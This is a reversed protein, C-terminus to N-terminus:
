FAYRAVIDSSSRIQENGGAPIEQATAVAPAALVIATGIFLNRTCRRLSTNAPIM